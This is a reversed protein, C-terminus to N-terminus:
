KEDRRQLPEDQYYPCDWDVQYETSGVSLIDGRQLPYWRDPELRMGNVASGNLSHTDKVLLSTRGGSFLLHQRSIQPDGPLVLQAKRGATVNGDFSQATYVVGTKRDTLRLILRYACLPPPGYVTIAINEMDSFDEAPTPPPGYVTIPINEMDSFYEAPTPPPGYIGAAIDAPETKRRRFFPNKMIHGEGFRCAAASGGPIATLSKEPKKIM